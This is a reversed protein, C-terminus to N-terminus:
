NTSYIIPESTQLILQTSTIHDVLWFSGDAFNLSDTFLLGGEIQSANANGILVTDFGSCDMMPNLTSIRVSDDTGTVLEIYLRTSDSCDTSNVQQMWVKDAGGSLLREVQYDYLGIPFFDQECAFLIVAIFLLRGRM